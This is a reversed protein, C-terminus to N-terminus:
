HLCVPIPVVEVLNGRGDVVNVSYGHYEAERTLEESLARAQVLAEEVSACHEGSKDDYGRSDGEVHFFYRM